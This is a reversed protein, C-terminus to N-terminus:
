GQEKLWNYADFRGTLEREMGDPTTALFAGERQVVTGVHIGDQRVTEVLVGNEERADIFLGIKGTQLEELTVMTGKIETRVLNLARELQKLKTIERKANNIMEIDKTDSVAYLYGERWIRAHQTAMALTKRDEDKLPPAKDVLRPLLERYRAIQGATLEAISDDSMEERDSIADEVIGRLIRRNPLKM